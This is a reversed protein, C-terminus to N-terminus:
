LVKRVTLPLTGNQSVRQISESGGLVVVRGASAVDALLDGFARFDAPTTALVQDRVQQREADSEGVLHRVLSSYGKADPLQYGDMSGIAGIISKTLEDDSLEVARLFDATEDYNRLTGELNPDRYSLYTWVGSQKGFKCFAGYAGGQARIKDWLWSTRVYNTIVNISGHYTYGLDYLNAGKGVYNV